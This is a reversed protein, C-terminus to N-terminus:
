ESFLEFQRKKLLHNWQSSMFICDVVHFEIEVSRIQKTSTAIVGQSYPRSVVLIEWKKKARIENEKNIHM